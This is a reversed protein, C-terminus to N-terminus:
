KAFDVQIDGSFSELRISGSGAGLRADLRSGPGYEETIVTGVPSSLTGSFSELQLRASTDAPLTLALQGSVSDARISGLAALSAQLRGDGSVTSLSLDDVADAAVAANGSVSELRVDGSLAGKLLIDGSVTDVRTDRSSLELDLDGSVTTFRAQDPRAGRVRVDGSVSDVSLRSGAVGGVDVEASVADVSVRARAPVSVQLQSPGAENGGGWGFWGGSGEPYRVEIRLDNADGEVRLAEVGDGLSGTIKVEPRDWARVVISGKVNDISVQGAPALARTEDVPTAALALPTAMLVALGLLRTFM